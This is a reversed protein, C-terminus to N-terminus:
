AGPRELSLRGFKGRRFDTIVAEAARRLDVDGGRAICGRRRGFASLGIRALEPVVGVIELAVEDTAEPELAVVGLAGLRWDKSKSPTLVGPLDLWEWGGGPRVWQPGRTLGPKAGTAVRHRGVMRNLLTSKGVNPVGVVSLRRPAPLLRALLRKLAAESGPELASIPLAALFGQERYHSVWEETTDPDALEAKNLVLILPTKGVWGRLPRHRTAEPARADVVEVFASVFPALERITKQTAVMHGPYWGAM